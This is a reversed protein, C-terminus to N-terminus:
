SLTLTRPGAWCVPLRLNPVSTQFTSWHLGFHQSKLCLPLFRRTARYGTRRSTRILLRQQTGFLRQIEVLKSSRLSSCAFFKWLHILMRETNRLTYLAEVSDTAALALRHALCNVSIMTGIENKLQKVVGNVRDLMAVAGDCSMTVHNPLSIENDAAVQKFM